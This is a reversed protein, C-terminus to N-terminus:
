NGGAKAQSQVIDDDTRSTEYITEVCKHVSTCSLEANAHEIFRTVSEVVLKEDCWVVDEWLVLCDYGHSRYYEVLEQETLRNPFAYESHWYVGFMELVLKRSDSVVFDPNHGGIWFGFDGVFQWLGPFHTNLIEQLRLESNNPRRQLATRSAKLVMEAHRPDDFHEKQTRSMRLRSELTQPGRSPMDLVLGTHVCSMHNWFDVDSWRRRHSEKIKQTISEDAWMRVANESLLRRTEETVHGGSNAVSIARSGKESMVHGTSGKGAEAFVSRLEDTLLLADPFRVRYADLTTNHEYKLHAYTIRNFPKNCLECKIM